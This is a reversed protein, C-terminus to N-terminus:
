KTAGTYINSGIVSSIVENSNSFFRDDCVLLEEANWNLMGTQELGMTLLCPLYYFSYRYYCALNYIGNEMGRLVSEKSIVFSALAPAEATSM